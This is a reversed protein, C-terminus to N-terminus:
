SRRPESDNPVAGNSDASDPEGASLSRPAHRRRASDRPRCPRVLDRLASDRPGMAEDDASRWVRIPRHGRRASGALNIPPASHSSEPFWAPVRLMACATSIELLQSYSARRGAEALQRIPAAADPRLTDDEALPSPPLEIM